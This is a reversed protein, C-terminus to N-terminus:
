DEWTYVEIKSVPFEVEGDMQLYNDGSFEIKVSETVKFIKVLGLLLKHLGIYVSPLILVLLWKPVRKIVVLYLDKDTRRAKPALKMGGGLYQSNMTACLWVKKQIIDKGDINIKAEKIKKSEKFARLTNKFYNWSNKAETSTNVKYCILGDIGIGTGNIFREKKGDIITYPLKDFVGTIEILKEKSKLSRIFDNGTGAGFIFMRNPITLGYIKNALRHMTGDGGVFILKDEKDITKLFAEIDDVELISHIAVETENKGLVKLLKSISNNSDGNKSLPNYFIIDM